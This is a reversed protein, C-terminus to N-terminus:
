SWRLLFLAYDEENKFTWWTYLDGWNDIYGSNFGTLNSDCWHHIECWKDYDIKDIDYKLVM